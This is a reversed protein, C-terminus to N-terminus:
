FRMEAQFQFNHLGQVRLIEQLVMTLAQTFPGEGRLWSESEVAFMM